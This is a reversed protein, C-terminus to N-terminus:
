ILRYNIGAVLKHSGQNVEENCTIRYNPDLQPMIVRPIDARQKATHAKRLEERWQADRMNDQNM